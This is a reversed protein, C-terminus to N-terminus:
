RDWKDCLSNIQDAFKATDKNALGENKHIVAILREGAALLRAFVNSVAKSSKPKKKVIERSGEAIRTNTELDYIDGSYPAVANLGTEEKLYRVFSECVEDDGHVM